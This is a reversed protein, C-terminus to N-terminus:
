GKIFKYVTQGDNLEDNWFLRIPREGNNKFDNTMLDTGDKNKLNGYEGPLLELGNRKARLNLGDVSTVEDTCMPWVGCWFWNKYHLYETEPMMLKRQMNDIEVYASNPFRFTKIICHMKALVLLIFLIVLAEFWCREVWPTPIIKLEGAVSAQQKTIPNYYNLTFSQNGTATFCDCWWYDPVVTILNNKEINIKYKSNFSSSQISLDEQKLQKTVLGNFKFFLGEQSGLSNLSLDFPQKGSPDITSGAPQIKLSETTPILNLQISGQAQWPLKATFNLSIREAISSQYKKNYQVTLLVPVKNNLTIQITATSNNHDFYSGDALVIQVGIPLPKDLNVDFAVNGKGKSKATLMLEMVPLFDEDDTYTLSVHSPKCQPCLALGQHAIKLSAPQSKEVEIKIDKARIDIYGPYRAAVSVQYAGPVSFKLDGTVLTPDNRDETMIHSSLGQGNDTRLDITMTQPLNLFNVKYNKGVQNSSEAWAKVVLDQNLGVSYVGNVAQLERNSADYLAWDVLVETKLLIKTDKIPNNFRLSHTKGASLAPIPSILTTKGYLKNPTLGDGRQMKYGYEKMDGNTSNTYNIVKPLSRKDAGSSLTVISKVPFPPTFSVMKGSITLNSGQDDKVGLISAYVKSMDKLMDEGNEILIDGDKPDGNFTKLLASRIHANDQTQISVFFARLNKGKFQSRYKQFVNTASAENAPVIGDFGGDTIILLIAEENVKTQAVLIELAKTVSEFPTNASAKWKSVGNLSAQTLNSHPSDINSMKVVSLNDVSGTMSILSQLTFLATQYEGDMSGSDDMVVAIPRAFVVQISSLLLLLLIKLTIKHM